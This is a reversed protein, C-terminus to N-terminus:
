VTKLLNSLNTDILLSEKELLALQISQLRIRNRYLEGFIEQKKMDLIPIQLEQIAKIPLNLVTTGAKRSLFYNQADVQQMYWTLYYPDLKGATVRIIVFASTAVAKTIKGDFVIVPTNRGKCLVLIDGKVLLHKEAVHGDIKTADIANFSHTAVNIDRPQLLTYEGKYANDLPARPTYGFYIDAYKSLHFM